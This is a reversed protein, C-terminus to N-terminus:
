RGATGSRVSSLVPRDRNAYGASMVMNNLLTDLAACTREKLRRSMLPALIVWVLANAAAAAGVAGMWAGPGLMVWFVGSLALTLFVTLGIPFRKIFGAMREVGGLEAEVSLAGPAGRLHIRSAGLLPSQRTSHMGPGTCSLESETRADIRFGLTTLPAVAVDLARDPDGSFGISTEYRM